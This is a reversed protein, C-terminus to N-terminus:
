FVHSSINAPAAAVPLVNARQMEYTTYWALVLSKCFLSLFPSLSSKTFLLCEHKVNGLASVPLISVCSHALRRFKASKKLQRPSVSDM